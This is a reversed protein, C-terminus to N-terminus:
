KQTGKLSKKRRRIALYAFLVTLGSAIVCFYFSLGRGLMELQFSFSKSFLHGYGDLMLYDTVGMGGPVPVCNSGLTIYCQTVFLDALADPRGGMAMYVCLIVAFQCLRQLVNSIFAKVLMPTHGAMLSVCEAYEEQSKELKEYIRDPHRLIHHRSFFGVVRRSLGFLIRQRRLLMYFLVALGSLTIFGLVILIRSLLSFDFFMWPKALVCVVSISVIALTYMVLNLLLSATAVAGPVGDQMMFFASAPQGGSASPTIASFYIDAAGYVFGQRVKKPYGVGTLITRNTEGLFYIMGFMSLVALALWFPDSTKIAKWLKAPSMEESQSFVAWVTLAALILAVITWLRKNKVGM